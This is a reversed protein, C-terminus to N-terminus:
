RADVSVSDQFPLLSNCGTRGFRNELGHYTQGSGHVSRANLNASDGFLSFHAEVQAECGLIAM